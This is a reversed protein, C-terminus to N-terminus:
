RRVAERRRQALLAELCPDSMNECGYAPDIIPQGCEECCGSLRRQKVCEQWARTVSEMFATVAPRDTPDISAPLTFAPPM